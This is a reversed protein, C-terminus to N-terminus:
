LQSELQDIEDNLEDILYRIELQEQYEDDDHILFSPKLKRICSDLENKLIKLKLENEAKTISAPKTIQEM